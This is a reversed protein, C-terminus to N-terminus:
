GNGNNKGKTAVFSVCDGQNKFAAGKGDVLTKWGSDKCQTTSIPSIPAVVAFFRAAPVYGSWNTDIRFIGVGGTGGDTYNGAAQTNWLVADSNTDTGVTPAGSPVSMNLSNYPGDTGLPSTGWSQTNFAIGYAVKDPVVVGTLDFSILFNYGNNCNPLYGGNTCAPDSAPRWPVHVTKTVTKILSTPNGLADVSYLNLTIPHDYGTNSSDPNACNHTNWGGQQCAWSNMLVDVSALTRNTGAFAVFDGFESTQTAQFGVSPSSGPVPEPISNYIVETAAFAPFAFAFSGFVIGLTALFSTIKKM